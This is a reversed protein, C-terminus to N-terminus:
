ELANWVEIAQRTQQVDHVRVVQVGMSISKLLAAISGGLRVSPDLVRTIEGIFSKRSVGIMLPCGLGHFLGLNKLLTKNHVLNKGFGIGPDIIINEIPLGLKVAQLVKEELFDFIDLMIDDYTPNVQM